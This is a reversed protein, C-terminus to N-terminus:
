PNAPASLAAKNAAYVAKVSTLAAKRPAANANELDSRQNVIADFIALRALNSAYALEEADAKRQDPSEFAQVAQGAAGGGSGGGAGGSASGGGALTPLGSLSAVTKIVASKVASGAQIVKTADTRAGKITFSGVSEMKIAIDVNGFNAKAKTNNVGSPSEPRKWFSEPAFVVLSANKDGLVGQNGTISSQVEAGAKAVFATTIADNQPQAAPPAALTPARLQQALDLLAQFRKQDAQSLKQSAQKLAAEQKDASERSGALWTQYAELYLNAAEQYAKDITQYGPQAFTDVTAAAVSGNAVYSQLVARFEGKRKAAEALLSGDRVRAQAAVIDGALNEKLFEPSTWYSRDLVNVDVSLSACGALSGVLLLTLLSKM